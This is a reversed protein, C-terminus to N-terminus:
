FSYTCKLVASWSRHHPRLLNCPVSIHTYTCQAGVWVWPANPCPARYPQVACATRPSTNNPRNMQSIIRRTWSIKKIPINNKKLFILWCHKEAPKYNWGFPEMTSRTLVVFVHGAPPSAEYRVDQKGLSRIPGSPPPSPCSGVFFIHRSGISPQQDCRLISLPQKFKALYCRFTSCFNVWFKESDLCAWLHQQEATAAKQNAQGWSCCLKEKYMRRILQWITKLMEWKLNPCTFLIWFNPATQQKDQVNRNTMRNKSKREVQTMWITAQGM